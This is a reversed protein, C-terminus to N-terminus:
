LSTRSLPLVSSVEAIFEGIQSQQSLEELRARREPLERVRPLESNAITINPDPEVYGTRHIDAKNRNPGVNRGFGGRETVM